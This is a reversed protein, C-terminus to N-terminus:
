KKLQNFPIITAGASSATPTQQTPTTPELSLGFEATPDVLRILANFPIKLTYFIGGFSLDVCFFSDSVILNEFQYQLVVTIETPYKKQLFDPIKVDPRNTQFTIFLHSDDTLGNKAIEGLISRATERLGIQLHKQYDTPTM